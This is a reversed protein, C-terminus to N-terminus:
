EEKVIILKVMDGDKFGKESMKDYLLSPLWQHLPIEVVDKMMDEEMSDRGDGFGEDWGNNYIKKHNDQLWKEDKMMQERAYDQGEMYGSDHAMDIQFQDRDKQWTAFHRAIHEIDSAYLTAYQGDYEEITKYRRQMKKIEEELINNELQNMLGEAVKTTTEDIMKETEESLPEEERYPEALQNDNDVIGADKLFKLASEKDKTVMKMIDDM